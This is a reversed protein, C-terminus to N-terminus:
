VLLRRQRSQLPPGESALFDTVLGSNCHASPFQIPAQCRTERNPEGILGDIAIDCGFVKGIPQTSPDADLKRAVIEALGRNPDHDPKPIQAVDVVHVPIDICRAARSQCLGISGHIFSHASGNLKM